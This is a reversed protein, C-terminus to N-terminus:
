IGTLPSFASMRGQRMQFPSLLSQQWTQIQSLFENDYTVSAGTVSEKSVGRILPLNLVRFIELCVWDVIQEPIVQEYNLPWVGPHAIAVLVPTPAAIINPWGYRFTRPWSREQTPVVKVGVWPGEEDCAMSAALAHGEMVTSPVVLNWRTQLWPAVAVASIYAFPAPDQGDIKEPVGVLPTQPSPGPATPDTIQAM